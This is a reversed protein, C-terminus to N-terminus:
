LNSKYLFYKFCDLYFTRWKENVSSRNIRNELYRILFLSDYVRKVFKNYKINLGEISYEDELFKGFKNTIDEVDYGYRRCVRELEIITPVSDLVSRCFANVINSDVDLYILSNDKNNFNYVVYGKYIVLELVAIITDISYIGNLFDIFSKLNCYSSFDTWRAFNINLKESKKIDSLFVSNNKSFYDLASDLCENIDMNLSDNPPFLTNNMYIKDLIGLIDTCEFSTLSCFKNFETCISKYGYCKSIKTVDSSIVKIDGKYKVFLLISTLTSLLQIRIFKLGIVENRFINGINSQSNCCLITDLKRALVTLYEKVSELSLTYWFPTFSIYSYESDSNYEVCKCSCILYIGKEGLYYKKQIIQVKCFHSCIYEDNNFTVVNWNDNRLADRYKKWDERRIKFTPIYSTNEVNNDKEIIYSSDLIDPLWVDSFCIHKGVVNKKVDVELLSNSADEDVVYFHIARIFERRIKHYITYDQKLEEYNDILYKYLIAELSYFFNSFHFGTKCVEDYVNIEPFVGNNIYYRAIDEAKLLFGTYFLFEVSKGVVESLNLAKQTLLVYYKQNSQKDKTFSFLDSFDKSLGTDETMVNDCNKKM